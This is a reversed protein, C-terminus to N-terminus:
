MVPSLSPDFRFSFFLQSTLRVLSTVYRIWDSGTTTQNKADAITQASCAALPHM